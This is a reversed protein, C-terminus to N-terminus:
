SMVCEILPGINFEIDRTPDSYKWKWTHSFWRCAGLFLCLIVYLSSLCVRFEKLLMKM